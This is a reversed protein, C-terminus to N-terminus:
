RVSALREARRIIEDPHLQFDQGGASAARAAMPKDVPAKVGSREEMVALGCFPVCM